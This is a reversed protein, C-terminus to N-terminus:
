PLARGSRSKQKQADYAQLVEMLARRMPRFHARINLWEEGAFTEVGKLTADARDLAKTFFKGGVSLQIEIHNGTDLARLMYSMFSSLKEKEKESGTVQGYAACLGERLRPNQLVKQIIYYRSPLDM